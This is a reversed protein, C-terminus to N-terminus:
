QNEQEMARIIPNDELYEDDDDDLEDLEDLLSQNMKKRSQRRHKKPELRPEALTIGMDGVKNRVDGERKTSLTRLQFEERAKIEDLLQFYYPDREWDGTVVCGPEGVHLCNNFACGNPKNEELKKRIEPFAQALTHKTVKMLSPQSFGPTDALYGGGALPLLSVNRTTHKGRGSRTSVEGVRQEEFWKSGSNPDFLSGEEMLNPSQGNSRLANILSSKGVGSPGVIVTTRDRLYFALSDLGRKSEVSCFIPAYGWQRLRTKWEILVEDRVLECKNLALTLPFGTSEAEVLFRTLSYPEVKPQDLSFVVLFHDANAIPPDPIESERPFVNEIMGRRDVWDISGVLVRDGVLVRRKIKKLVARVVCLLEIGAGRGSGELVETRSPEEPPTSQVIVRMFNAQASAVMGIAQNPSLIHSNSLSSLSSSQTHKTRTTERAEKLANSQAQKSKDHTNRCVISTTLLSFRRRLFLAATSSSTLHPPAHHRLLSFSTAAM